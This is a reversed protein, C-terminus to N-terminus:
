QGGGGAPEGPHCADCANEAFPDHTVAQLM